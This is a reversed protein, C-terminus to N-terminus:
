KKSKKNKRTKKKWYQLKLSKIANKFSHGSLEKYANDVNKNAKKKMTMFQNDKKVYKLLNYKMLLAHIEDRSTIKNKKFIVKLEQLTPKKQKIEKILKESM